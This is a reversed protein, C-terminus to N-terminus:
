ISSKKVTGKKIHDALTKKKKEPFKWVDPLLDNQSRFIEFSLKLTVRSEWVRAVQGYNGIEILERKKGDRCLKISFREANHLGDLSASIVGNTHANKPHIFWKSTRTRERM